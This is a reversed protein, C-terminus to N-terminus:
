SISCMYLMYIITLAICMCHVHLHTHHAVLLSCFQRMKLYTCVRCESWCISCRKWLIWTHVIKRYARVHVHLTLKSRVRRVVYKHAQWIPFKNSPAKDLMEQLGGVCYELVVYSPSVQWLFCECVSTVMSSYTHCSCLWTQLPDSLLIIAVGWCM